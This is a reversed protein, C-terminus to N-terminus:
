LSSTITSNKNLLWAAYTCRLLGQPSKVIASKNSNSLNTAKTLDPLTLDTNQGKHLGHIQIMAM